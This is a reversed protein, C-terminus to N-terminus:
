GRVQCKPLHNLVSRIADGFRNAELPGGLQLEREAAEQTVVYLRLRGGVGSARDQYGVTM